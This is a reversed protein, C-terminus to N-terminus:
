QKKGFNVRIVNDKIFSVVKEDELENEDLLENGVDRFNIASIGRDFADDTSNRVYDIIGEHMVMASNYDDDSEYANGTTDYATMTFNNEGNPKLILYYRDPLLSIIEMQKNLEDEDSM